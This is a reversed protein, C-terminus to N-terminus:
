RWQQRMTRRRRRCPLLCARSISQTQQDTCTQPHVAPIHGTTRGCIHSANGQMARGAACIQRWPWAYRHCVSVAKTLAQLQTVLRARIAHLQDVEHAVATRAQMHLM